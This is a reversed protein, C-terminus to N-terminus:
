ARWERLSNGADCHVVEGTVFRADDSGLFLGLSVIDSALGHLSLVQMARATEALGKPEIDMIVLEAGEGAYGLAPARGLGGAAGTVVTCPLIM